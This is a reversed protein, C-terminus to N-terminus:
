KNFQNRNGKVVFDQGIKISVLSAIEQKFLNRLKLIADKYKKFLHQRMISYEGEEDRTGYIALKSLNDKRFYSLPPLIQGHKNMYPNDETIPPELPTNSRQNQLGILVIFSSNKSYNDDRMRGSPMQGAAMQGSSQQVRTSQVRERSGEERGMVQYNPNQSRRNHAEM